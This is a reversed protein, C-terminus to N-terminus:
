NHERGCIEHESLSATLEIIRAFAVYHVLVICFIDKGNM